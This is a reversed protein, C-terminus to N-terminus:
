MGGQGSRRSHRRLDGRLGALSYASNHSHQAPHIILLSSFVAEERSDM